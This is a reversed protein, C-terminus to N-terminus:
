VRRCINDAMYGIAGAYYISNNYHLIMKYNPYALFVPGGEPQVISANLNQNPLAQGDLTRVGLTNWEKVSKVTHKGQLSSDFNHPLKVQIAWPQGYQWGNMKMYNAISAFVDAKNKWIDKRGTRDYDVAYKYFSSPLFQPQGSAGAWEGKFDKLSVHGENLIHLALFLEKKFFEKRPSEYALTVLSNIVPFDGMYEGYSSEMGWFAVIFCPDVQYKEGIEELLAKNQEFRKRGIILKYKDARTTLYHNYTLRHEPQSRALNKVRRSPEKVTALAADLLKPSIGQALAEQRVYAIWEPWSTQGAFGPMTYSILFLILISIRTHM